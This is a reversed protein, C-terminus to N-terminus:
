QWRGSLTANDRTANGGGGMRQLKSTKQENLYRSAALRAAADVEDRSSEDTKSKEPRAKDTSKYNVVNEESRAAPAKILGLAIENVANRVLQRQQPTMAKYEVILRNCETDTPGAGTAPTVSQQQITPSSPEGANAFLVSMLLATGMSSATGLRMLSLIHARSMGINKM